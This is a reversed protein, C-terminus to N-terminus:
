DNWVFIESIGTRSKGKHTFVIRLKSSKVPEFRAENWQGGTPKAPTLTPRPVDQWDDGSWYQVVYQAPAQVGGKDDFIALEVRRFEITKGFDIQLWDTENKSEYATWRNNPNPSFVVLGDNVKNVKDFPSTFSASAKPFEHKGDNLALNGAPPPAPSVPLQAPGWLEVESLGSKGDAAHTLHVRVKSTSIQAFRYRNATHGAPTTPEAQTIKIPKWYHGDWSELEIKQPTVVPATAVAQPGHRDDLVYLNATDLPRPVGLDITISDVPNPSGECTWRNPPNLHYWYNGDNIKTLPTKPNAYTATIRPFYTGDNNVAYNVRAGRKESVAAAPLEATLKTLKPSNAVSKGDVLVQLGVGRHYRTGTKDWLVTILHGRYPADELAFYDWEDPALPQVILKQDDRTRLGVLGTIVLDNFSSHFYHESHNYGDHGDFSGTDPHLAEALYPQGKKRHSKAFTTLVQLYDVKTVVNQPYDQLVHALAKLTQATGYPWSQGSWWCCSKSLYYLPDRVEVTRPGFDAWFGQRDTLWKWGTEFGRGPDPLNFQWPIYGILERGYPSGAFQGSQHTLTLAKVTHGDREEDRMSMHFFFERKPDWLKEQLKQKVSEAQADFKTAAAQDGALRAVKAIARLDAWLYANLAPRYGPAGRLIDKSQRSNINFEMGDDHGNQHFLGVDGNFHEKEWDAQNAILDPLLDVLYQSDPHVQHAAWIGDALWTSYRRPQAGATRFWYRGYDRVVQPNRLWRAEYLQHGAPCSIAGYTGSWFPRDIFETFSYGSNPSGYTLHKTLLEWRYYYTTTIEPDPCEFFPINERYWTWDQNDWFKQQELQQQKDLVGAPANVGVFSFTLAVVVSVLRRM